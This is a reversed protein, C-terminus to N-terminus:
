PSASPGTDIAREPLLRVTALVEKLWADADFARLEADDPSVYLGVFYGRGGSPVLAFACGTAVVGEAGDVVVPESATCQGTLLGAAWEDFSGSIPKSASSLFLHDERAPDYLFDGAPDTFTPEGPTTWAVTAPTAAWGAPYSISIGHIDSTFTETLAPPAYPSPSPSPSLTPAPTPAPTSSATAAPGGVGPSSGLRVVSLGILGVAILAVAAVAAKAFSSMNWLRWPVRGLARRQPTRDITALASRLVWDPARPPAETAYLDAIRREFDHKAKM